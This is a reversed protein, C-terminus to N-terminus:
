NSSASTISDIERGCINRWNEWNYCVVTKADYLSLNFIGRIIQITHIKRDKYICNELTLTENCGNTWTLKKDIVKDLLDTRSNPLATDVLEIHVFKRTIKKVAIGRSVCYSIFLDHTIKNIM